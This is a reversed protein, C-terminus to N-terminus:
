IAFAKIAIDIRWQYLYRPAASLYRGRSRIPMHSEMRTKEGIGGGTVDTEGGGVTRREQIKRKM